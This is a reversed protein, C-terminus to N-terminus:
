QPVFDFGAIDEGIDITRVAYVNQKSRVSLTVSQGAPVDTFRYHGLSNTYTTVSQGSSDTLTVAARAVGAGKRSLVRGSITAGAATPPFFGPAASAAFTGTANAAFSTLFGCPGISFNPNVSSLALALNRSATTNASFNIFDSTYVINQDPTSATYAASNSTDDGALSSQSTGVPTIVATLLNIRSGTGVGPSTPSERLIQITVTGSIPQTVRDPDTSTNITAQTTTESTIFIRADQPGSLEAPLGNINQYEFRIPSGTGVTRFSGNACNNDFLFDRLTQGDQNPRQSFQAFTVGSGQANAFTAACLLMLVAFTMKGWFSSKALIQNKM